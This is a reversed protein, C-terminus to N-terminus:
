QADELACALSCYIAPGTFSVDEGAQLGFTGPIGIPIM